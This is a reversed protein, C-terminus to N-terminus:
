LRFVVWQKESFAEKMFGEVSVEELCVGLM